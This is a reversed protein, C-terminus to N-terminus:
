QDDTQTTAGDESISPSRNDAPGPLSLESLAEEIITKINQEIELAVLGVLQTAIRSPIALFRARAATTHDAFAREAERIEVLENALKRNEFSTKITQERALKAREQTLDLKHGADRPNMIHQLADRPNYYITASDRRTPELRELRKKLTKYTVSALWELDHLSIGAKWNDM